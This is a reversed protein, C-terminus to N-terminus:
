SPKPPTPRPSKKQSERLRDVEARVLRSTLLTYLTQDRSMPSSPNLYNELYNVSVVTERVDTLLQELETLSYVLVHSFDPMEKFKGARRERDFKKLTAPNALLLSDPPLEACYGWLWHAIKNRQKYISDVVNSVANFLELDDESLSVDAAAQRAVRQLGDSTLKDFVALAVTPDAGM